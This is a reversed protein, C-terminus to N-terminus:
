YYMLCFSSFPFPPFPAAFRQLPLTQCFFFCEVVEEKKKKEGGEEMLLLPSSFVRKPVISLTGGEEM